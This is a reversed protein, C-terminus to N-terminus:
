RNGDHAGGGRTSGHRGGKLGGAAGAEKGGRLGGAGARNRSARTGAAAAGGVSRKVMTVPKTVTTLATSTVGRIPVAGPTDRRASVTLSSDPAGAGRLRSSSSPKSTVVNTANSMSMEQTFSGSGASDAKTGRQAANRSLENGSVATGDSKSAGGRLSDSRTVDNRTVDNRSGSTRSVTSRSSPGRGSGSVSKGEAAGARAGAAVERGHRQKFELLKKKM